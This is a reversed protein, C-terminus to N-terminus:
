WGREHGDFSNGTIRLPYGLAEDVETPPAKKRRSSKVHWVTVHYECANRDKKAARSNERPVQRLPKGHRSSNGVDIETFM